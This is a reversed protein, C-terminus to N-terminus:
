EDDDDMVQGEVFEEHHCDDCCWGEGVLWGILENKEGKKNEECEEKNRRCYGCRPEDCECCDCDKCCDCEKCREHDPNDLHHLCDHCVYGWKADKIIDSGDRECNQWSGCRRCWEENENDKMKANWERFEALQRELEAVTRKLAGQEFGLGDVMEGWSEIEKKLEANEKRKEAIYDELHRTREALKATKTKLEANKKELKENDFEATELLAETDNLKKELYANTEQEKLLECHLYDEFSIGTKKGTQNTKPM